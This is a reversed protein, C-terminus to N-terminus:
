PEVLMDPHYAMALGLPSYDVLDISICIRNLYKVGIETNGYSPLRLRIRLGRTVACMPSCYTPTTSEIWNMIM